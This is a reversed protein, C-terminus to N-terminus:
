LTTKELHQDGWYMAAGDGQIDVPDGDTVIAGTTGADFFM